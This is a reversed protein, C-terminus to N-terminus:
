RRPLSEKSRGYVREWALWDELERTDRWDRRESMHVWEGGAGIEPDSARARLMTAHASESDIDSDASTTGASRSWWSSGKVPPVDWLGSLASVGPLSTFVDPARPRYISLSLRSAMKVAVASALTSLEGKAQPPLM